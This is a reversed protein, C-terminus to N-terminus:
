YNDFGFSVAMACIGVVSFFLIITLVTKITVYKNQGIDQPKTKLAWLAGICIIAVLACWVGVRKLIYYISVGSYAIKDYLQKYKGPDKGGNRTAGGGKGFVNNYTLMVNQLMLMKTIFFCVM